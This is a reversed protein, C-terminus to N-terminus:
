IDFLLNTYTPMPWYTSDVLTELKDVVKRLENMALLVNDKWLLALEYANTKTSLILNVIFFWKIDFWITLLMLLCFIGALLGIIFLVSAIGSNIVETLMVYESALYLFIISVIGFTLLSVLFTFMTMLVSVDIM